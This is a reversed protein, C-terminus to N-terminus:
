SMSTHGEREGVFLCVCLGNLKLWFVFIGNIKCQKVTMHYHVLYAQSLLYTSSFIQLLRVEEICCEMRLRILAHAGIIACM